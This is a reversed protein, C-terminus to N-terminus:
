FVRRTEVVSDRDNVTLKEFYTLSHRVDIIRVSPATAKKENNRGSINGNGTQEAEPAFIVSIRKGDRLYIEYYSCLHSVHRFYGALM